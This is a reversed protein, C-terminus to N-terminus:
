SASREGKAIGLLRALTLKRRERTGSPFYSAALRVLGRPMERLSLGSALRRARARMRRALATDERALASRARGVLDKIVRYKFEERSVQLISLAARLDASGNIFPEAKGCERARAAAIICSDTLAMRIPRSSPISGEIVRSCALIQAMNAMQTVEAMRCWLDFDNSTRLSVRYGGVSEFVSRRMMITSQVFPNGHRLFTRLEQDSLPLERRGIVNDESDILDVCAGLLGLDPEREMRAHQIWLRDPHIVDTGDLRALLPARAISAAFNICKAAGLVDRRYLRIREDRAAWEAMIRDAGDRSNNDVLILEYDKFTQNALSRLAPGLFPGAHQVAM